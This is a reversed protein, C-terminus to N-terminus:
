QGARRTALGHLANGGAFGAGLVAMDNNADDTISAGVATGIMTGALLASGATPNPISPGSRDALAAPPAM